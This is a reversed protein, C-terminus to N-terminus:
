LRQGVVAIRNCDTETCQFCHRKYTRWIWNLLPQYNLIAFRNKLLARLFRVRGSRKDFFLYRETAYYRCLARELSERSFHQFHKKQLGMNSHPATLILRAGPRQIKAMSSIFLDLLDLPIHEIVEISTVVDFHGLQHEETIDVCHVNLGPNLAKALHIARDSYDVGCLSKDPFALNLERLFRGDGCGVDILSSFAETRLLEVLFEASALYNLGWSWFVHLKFNGDELSPVYHYPFGYQDEQIRQPSLSNRM